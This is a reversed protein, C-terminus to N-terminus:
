ARNNENALKTDAFPVGCKNIEIKILQLYKTAYIYNEITNRTFYM